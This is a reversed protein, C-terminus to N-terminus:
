AAKPLITPKEFISLLLEPCPTVIGDVGCKNRLRRMEEGLVVPGAYVAIGSEKLTKAIDVTIAPGPWVVADADISLLLDGNIKAHDMHFRHAIPIKPDMSRMVTRGADNAMVVMIKDYPVGFKRLKRALLNEMGPARVDIFIRYGTQEVLALVDDLAVIPNDDAETIVRWEALSHDTLYVPEDAVMRQLSHWAVLEGDNAARVEVYIGGAGVEIAKRLAAM